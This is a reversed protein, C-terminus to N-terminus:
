AEGAPYQFPHGKPDLVWDLYSYATTQYHFTPSIKKCRPTPEEGNMAVRVSWSNGDLDDQSAFARGGAPIVPPQKGTLRGFWGM